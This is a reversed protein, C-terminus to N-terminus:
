APNSIRVLIAIFLEIMQSTISHLRLFTSCHKLHVCQEGDEHDFFYALCPVLVFCAALLAFQMYFFVSNSLSFPFKFGLWDGRGADSICLLGVHSLLLTVLRPESSPWKYWKCVHCCSPSTTLTSPLSILLTPSFKHIDTTLMCYRILICYGMHTHNLKCRVSLGNPQSLLVVSGGPWFM